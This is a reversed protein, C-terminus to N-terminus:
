LHSLATGFDYSHSSVNGYDRVLELLIAASM